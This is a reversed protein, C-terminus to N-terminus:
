GGGPACPGRVNDVQYKLIHVHVNAGKGDQSPVKGASALTLYFPVLVNANEQRNSPSVGNPGHWGCVVRGLFGSVDTVHEDERIATSWGKCLCWWAWGGGFGCGCAAYPVARSEGCGGHGLEIGVQVPLQKQV